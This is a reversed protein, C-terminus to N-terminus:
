RTTGRDQLAREMVEAAHGPLHQDVGRPRQHDIVVHRSALDLEVVPEQRERGVPLETRARTRRIPGPRLPLVLAAADAIDLSVGDGSMAELAPRPHLRMQPPRLPLNGVPPTVAGGSFNRELAEGAFRLAQARTRAPRRKPCSRSKTRVTWASQATTTSM